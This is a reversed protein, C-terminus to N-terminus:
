TEKGFQGKKIPFPIGVAFCLISMKKIARREAARLHERYKRHHEHKFEPWCKDQRQKRMSLTSNKAILGEPIARIVKKTLDRGSREKLSVDKIVIEFLAVSEDTQCKAALELATLGNSPHTIELDSERSLWKVAEARGLRIAQMLPTDGYQAKTHPPIASYESLWTFMNQPQEQYEVVAHWASQGYSGNADGINIGRALFSNAIRPTMLRALCYLDMRSLRSSIKAARELMLTECVVQFTDLSTTAVQLYSPSDTGKELCVPSLLHEPTILRLLLRMIGRNGYEYALAYLSEGACNYCSPLITGCKLLFELIDPRMQLSWSVFNRRLARSTVTRHRTYDAQSQVAKEFNTSLQWEMQIDEQLSESRLFDNIKQDLAKSWPSRMFELFLCIDRQDPTFLCERFIRELILAPLLEFMGRTISHLYPLPTLTYTPTLGLTLAFGLM